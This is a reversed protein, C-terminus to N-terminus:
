YALTAPSARTKLAPKVPTAKACLEVLSAIDFPGEFALLAIDLPEMDDPPSIDLPSAIAEPSWMAVAPFLFFCTAWPAIDELDLDEPAIVEPDVLELSLPAEMDDADSVDV